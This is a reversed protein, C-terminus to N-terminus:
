WPAGLFDSRPGSCNCAAYWRRAYAEGREEALQRYRGHFSPHVYDPIKLEPKAPEPSPAVPAIEPAAIVATGGLMAALRQMFSPSEPLEPEVIVEYSPNQVYTTFLEFEQRTTLPAEDKPTPAVTEVIPRELTTSM